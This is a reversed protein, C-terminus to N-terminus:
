RGRGTLVLFHKIVVAEEHLTAAEYARETQAVAKGLESRAVAAHEAESMAPVAPPADGEVEEAVEMAAQGDVVTSSEGAHQQRPEHSTPPPVESDADAATTSSTGLAIAAQELDNHAKLLARRAAQDEFGMELLMRLKAPDVARPPAANGGRAVAALQLAEHLSPECLMAVADDVSNGNRRLSEAAVPEEYGLSVLQELGSAAIPEGQRTRGYRHM